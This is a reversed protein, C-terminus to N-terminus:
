KDLSPERCPREPSAFGKVAEDVSEFIRFVHILRTKKLLDSLADSQILHLDGGANRLTMLGAALVGLMRSGAWPIRSSDVVVKTIGEGLLQKIYMHLLAEADGDLAMKMRFIVIDDRQEQEITM